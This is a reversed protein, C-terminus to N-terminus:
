APVDHTGGCVVSCVEGLLEPYAPILASPQQGLPKVRVRYGDFAGVGQRLDAGGVGVQGDVGRCGVDDSNRSPDYERTIGAFQTEGRQLVTIAGGQLYHDAQLLDTLIRQLGPFGVDVEAVDDIYM